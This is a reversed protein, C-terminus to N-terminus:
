SRSFLEEKVSSRSAEPPHLMVVRDVPRESSETKEARCKCFSGYAGCELDCSEFESM